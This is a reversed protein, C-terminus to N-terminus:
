AQGAPSPTRVLEWGLQQLLAPWQPGSLAEHERARAEAIPDHADEQLWGPHCMMVVGSRNSGWGLWTRAQALWTQADGQFDTIGVLAQSHPVGAQDALHMLAQAGMVRVWPRAHPYRAQLLAMLADRFVPFQQLHQHGDIHDPPAQWAQEFRDMQDEMCRRIDRVDVGRVLSRAMLAGLSTGHGARHAWPSTWDLHLGVSIRDRLDRLWPAHEPWHPSLVMASTASIRGREALDVIGRSVGPNLAYDDACVVLSNM